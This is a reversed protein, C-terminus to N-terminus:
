FQITNEAKERPERYVNAQDAWLIRFDIITIDLTPDSGFGGVSANMWMTRFPLTQGLNNTVPEILEWFFTDGVHSNPEGYKKTLRRGLTAIFQRDEAFRNLKQTSQVRYIRGKPTVGFNYTFGDTEAEFQDGGIFTLPALSRAAQVTMGLRFGNVDTAQTASKQAIAPQATCAMIGAMPILATCVASRMWRM